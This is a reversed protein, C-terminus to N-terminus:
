GKGRTSAMKDVAEPAWYNQPETKNASIQSLWFVFIVM